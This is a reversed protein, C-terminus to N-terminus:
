GDSRKCLILPMVDKVQIPDSTLVDQCCGLFVFYSGYSMKKGAVHVGHLLCIFLARTEFINSSYGSVKPSQLTICHCSAIAHLPRSYKREMKNHWSKVQISNKQNRPNQHCNAYLWCQYPHTLLSTINKCLSAPGHFNISSHHYM